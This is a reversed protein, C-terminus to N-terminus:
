VNTRLEGLEDLNLELGAHVIRGCLLAEVSVIEPVRYRFFSTDEGYWLGDELREYFLALKEVGDGDLWRLDLQAPPQHDDDDRWQKPGAPTEEKAFDVIERMAIRNMGVMGFGGGQRPPLRVLRATLELPRKAVEARVIVNREQFIAPLTVALRSVMEIVGDAITPVGVPARITYPVIVIRPVIDDLAELMAACTSTTAEIDDDLSVWAGLKPDENMREWAVHFARSRAMGIYTAGCDLHRSVEALQRFRHITRIVPLSNRDPAETQRQIEQLAAVIGIQHALSYVSTSVVVRELM